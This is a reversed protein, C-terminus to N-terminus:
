WVGIGLGLTLRNTSDMDKHLLPVVQLRKYSCDLLWRKGLPYYVGVGFAVGSGEFHVRSKDVKRTVLSAAYWGGLQGYVSLPKPLFNFKLPYICYKLLFDLSGAKHSDKDQNIYDLFSNVLLIAGFKPSFQTHIGMLPNRTWLASINASNGHLAGCSINPVWYVHYPKAYIAENQLLAIWLLLWVKKRTMISSDM